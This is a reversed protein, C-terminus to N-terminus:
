MTNLIEAGSEVLIAGNKILYNSRSKTFIEEPLAFISKGYDILLTITNNFLAENEGGIVLAAKSLGAFVREFNQISNQFSFDYFESIILLSDFGRYKKILELNTDLFEQLPSSIIIILNGKPNLLEEINKNIKKDIQIILIPSNKYFFKMFNKLAKFQYKSLDNKVLLGISRYYQNILDINGYHVLVFPPRDIEKLADPFKPDVITITKSIIEETVIEFDGISIKEKNRIANFVSEWAGSYKLFFYIIVKDM